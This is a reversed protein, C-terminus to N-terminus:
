SDIRWALETLASKWDIWEFRPPWWAPPSGVDVEAFEVWTVVRGSLFKLGGRRVKGVIGPEHPL